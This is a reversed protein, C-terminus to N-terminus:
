QGFTYKLQLLFSKAYERTVAFGPHDEKLVFIEEDTINNATFYLALGRGWESQFRYSANLGIRTNAGDVYQGFREVNGLSPVYSWNDMVVVSAGLSLGRAPGDLFEYSALVGGQHEPINNVPVTFDFNPDRLESTTYAYNVVINIEPRIQGMVEFEVGKIDRVGVLTSGANGGFSGLYVASVPINTTEADFYAISGGLAGSLFEGKIGVEYQTMEQPTTLPNGDPDRVGLNPRFAESFSFYGNLADIAGQDQIIRYTLGARGLLKDYSERVKTPPDRVVGGRIYTDSDVKSDQYLVGLLVDLRETPSLLLQLSGRLDQYGSTTRLRTALTSADV